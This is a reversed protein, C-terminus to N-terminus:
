SNGAAVNVFQDCRAHGFIKGDAGKFQERIHVSFCM